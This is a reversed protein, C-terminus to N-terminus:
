SPAESELTALYFPTRLEQYGAQSHHVPDSWMSAWNPEDRHEDLFSGYDAVVVNPYYAAIDQVTQLFLTENNVDDDLYGTTVWYITYNGAPGENVANLVGRIDQQWQSVDNGANNTGLAVLWVRPDFGDQRWDHIVESTATPGSGDIPRGWVGDLRIDDAAWGAEVLAPELLAYDIMEATLSDGIIGVQNINTPTGSPDSPSPSVPSPLAPYSPASGSSDTSTRTSSCASLALVAVLILALHAAIRRSM